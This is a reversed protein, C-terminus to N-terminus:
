LTDSSQQVEMDRIQEYMIESFVLLLRWSGEREKGKREKGIYRHICEKKSYKGWPNM